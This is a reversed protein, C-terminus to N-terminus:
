GTVDQAAPEVIESDIMHRRHRRREGAARAEVGEIRALEGVGEEDAAREPAARHFRIEQRTEGVAPQDATSLM